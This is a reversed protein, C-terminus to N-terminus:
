GPYGLIINVRRNEQRGESSTNYAVRRGDGFGRASLRSRDVGFRDALYDVVSRARERSVREANGPSANDTHGEMTATLQPNAELLGAVEGLREHYEPEIAASDADFMIQMALTMRAPLPQLGAVDTVCGLIANIRRNARMGEGTRNDAIPRSAGFGRAALRSRDIGHDSVLYDVVSEARRQSLARNNDASGVNDTHGEIVATVEPYRQLYTALVAFKDREARQIDDQGIEFQIDLLSCYEETEAPLPVVVLAPEDAPRPEAPTVTRATPAPAQRGFHYVLGASLMDLDGTNGVTDDVRYREAELRLSLADTVRYQFGAGVKHNLEKNSFRSQLVNVSGTSAYGVKAEGYHAGVRAFLSARDTVPWMGLLDVNWGSFEFEGDLSGAPDTTATFDVEGLDFWGGEISVHPNFRWGAFLRYGIDRNNDDFDTTSFGSELLDDKIEDEAMEARSQGASAGFYPGAAPDAALPLSVGLLALAGITRMSTITKM